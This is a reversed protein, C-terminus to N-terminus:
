IQIEINYIDFLSVLQYLPLGFAGQLFSQFSQRKKKLRFNNNSLILTRSNKVIKMIIDRLFTNLVMWVILKRENRAIKKWHIFVFMRYVAHKSRHFRFDGLETPLHRKVLEQGQINQKEPDINVDTSILGNKLYLNLEFTHISLIVSVSGM